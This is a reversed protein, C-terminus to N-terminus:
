KGAQYYGANKAGDKHYEIYLLSTTRSHNAGFSAKEKQAINTIKIIEGKYWKLNNIDLVDIKNGPHIKIDFRKREFEL